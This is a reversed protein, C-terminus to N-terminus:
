IRPMLFGFGNWSHTANPTSLASTLQEEGGFGLGSAGVGTVAWAVEATGERGLALAVVPATGTSVGDPTTLEPGSGGGTGDEDAGVAAPEALLGLAM